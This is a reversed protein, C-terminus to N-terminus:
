CLSLVHVDKLNGASLKAISAFQKAKGAVSKGM